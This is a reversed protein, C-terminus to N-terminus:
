QKTVCQAKLTSLRSRQTVSVENWVKVHASLVKQHSTLGEHASVYMFAPPKKKLMFIM